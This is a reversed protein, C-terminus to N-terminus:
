NIDPELLSSPPPHIGTKGPDATRDGHRLVERFIDINEVDLYKKMLIM